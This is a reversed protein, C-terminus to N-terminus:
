SGDKGSVLEQRYVMARTLLDQLKDVDVPKELYDFAGRRVAELTSGGTPYGTIIVVVVTTDMERIRRLLALGDIGPMVLDVMVIDYDNDKVMGLGHLAENASDAQCGQNQLVTRMSKCILEDDDIVLVKPTSM